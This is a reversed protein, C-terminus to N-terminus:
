AAPKVRGVLSLFGRSETSGGEGLKEYAVGDKFYYEYYMEWLRMSRGEVTDHLTINVPSYDISTQSIRKKNYQNLVETGMSMGPMTVSKVATTIVEQDPETLFKRVYTDLDRNFNFRLFFEFKLRPTGNSLDSKNYGYAEAAHRSDRLHVNQDFIGGFIGDPM